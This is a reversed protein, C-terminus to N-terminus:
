KRNARKAAKTRKRKAAREARYRKHEASEQPARYPREYPSMEMGGLMATAAAVGMISRNSM